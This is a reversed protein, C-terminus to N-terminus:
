KIQIVMKYKEDIQFEPLKVTGIKYKKNKDLAPFELVFENKQADVLTVRKGEESTIRNGQEDELFLYGLHVSKVYGNPTFYIKTGKGTSEIKNISIEGKSSVRLINSKEMSDIKLFKDTLVHKNTNEYIDNKIPVITLSKLDETKKLFEYKFNYSKTNASSGTFSSYLANGKDDFIMFEHFPIKKAENPKYYDGSFLIKNGFPSMIVKEARFRSEPLNVEVNPTITQSYKQTNSKSVKFKFDWPGKVENTWVINWLINSEEPIEFGSVDAAIIGAVKNENIRTYKMDISLPMDKGGFKFGSMIGLDDKLNNGEAVFGVVLLNDDLAVENASITIGNNTISKDVMSSFEIYKDVSSQKITKNNFYQFVSKLAPIDNALAPNIAGAGMICVTILAAAFIGKRVGSNLKKHKRGRNMASIIVDDINDPIEIQEISEKFKDM